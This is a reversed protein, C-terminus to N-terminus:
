NFSYNVGIAIQHVSTNEDSDESGDLKGEDNYKPAAGTIGFKGQLTIALNPMISYAGGLVLNHTSLVPAKTYDGDSNVLDKADEPAWVIDYDESEDGAERTSTGGLPMDWEYGLKLEINENLKYSPAIQLGLSMQKHTQEVKYISYDAETSNIDYLFLVAGNIAIQDNISYAATPGIAFGFSAQSEAKGGWVSDGISLINYGAKVDAGFKVPGAFSAATALAILALTKKVPFRKRQTTGAMMLFQLCTPDIASPM